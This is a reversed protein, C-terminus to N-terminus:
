ARESVFEASLERINEFKDVPLPPSFYYGQAYRCHNLILLELHKHDEIGEAVVEMSLDHALRIIATLIKGSTNGQEAGAIFSRDIKLNDFPLQKLYSLSSYGTGFDDLSLQVGLKKLQKLVDIAKDADSIIASETIEIELKEPSFNYNTLTQKINQIFDEHFLQIPSVNISLSLHEFRTGKWSTLQQAAAEIVWKGIPLIQLTEEAFLIFHDPSIMEGDPKFWRILAEAGYVQNNFLDIKPQFFLRFEDNVLAVDISNRLQFYREVKANLSPSFFSTQNKGSDKANYMAIDAKKILEEPGSADDPYLSIGISAGIKFENENVVIPDNLCAILDNALIAIEESDSFESVIVTFEDGGIRSLFDSERVRANFRRAAEILVLDGTGHGLSDNIEKFNDLDIFILALRSKERKSARLSSKLEEEFYQRNPQETLGDYFAMKKLKNEVDKQKSIDQFLFVLEADDTSVEIVSSVTLWVPLQENVSNSLNVEGNWGIGMQVDRKLQSLAHKDDSIFQWIKQKLIGDDSVKAIRNFADNSQYIEGNLDTFVIGESMSSFAKHAVNLRRVPDSLVQRILYFLVFIFFISVLGIQMLEILIAERQQKIFPQTDIFLEVKGLTMTEFKIPYLRSLNSQELLISKNSKDYSQIDGNQDIWRGMFVHGFQGYVVVGTIYQGELESDLIGAAFEESFARDVSKSYISWISPKVASAIRNATQKILVDLRQQFDTQSLHFRIGGFVSMVLFTSLVIGAILRVNFINNM